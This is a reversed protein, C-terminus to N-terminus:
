GHHVPQGADAGGDHGAHGGADEAAAAHGADEFSPEHSLVHAPEEHVATGDGAEGAGGAAFSVPEGGHVAAPGDGATGSQPQPATGHFVPAQPTEGHSEGSFLPQGHAGSGAPQDRVVPQEAQENFAAAQGGYGGGVQQESQETGYGPGAQENFAGAQGGYGGGVQQEDQQTTM